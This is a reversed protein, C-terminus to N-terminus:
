FWLSQILNSLFPTDTIMKKAISSGQIFNQITAVPIMAAISVLFFLITYFEVFGLIGGLIHNFGKLLPFSALFDLLSVIIQLIIKVAIFIAVFALAHYYAEEVEQRDFLMQLTAHSSGTPFPIWMTIKESLPQYFVRAVIFAIIFGVMHIFQLFLGRRFGVIFGVVM